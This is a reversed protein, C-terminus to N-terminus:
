NNTKGQIANLPISSSLSASIEEAMQNLAVCEARTIARKKPDFPWPSLILVQKNAVADFIGDSPKYYEGFGNDALYIVKGGDALVSYLVEREKEHIFPSVMVTGKLAAAICSDMYANLRKNDGHAAEDLMTHRVHVPMYRARQLLDANGVGSYMRGAIEIHDQVRFFRPMLRRTALRQPNMDIYRITAPLQRRQGMPRVHPMETFIPSIDYYAQDGLHHRLTDSTKSLLDKVEQFNGQIANMPISSSSSLYSYARGLQKVAQWFGRVSAMIGQPMTRKVYWVAHLHDPMLHFHLVQIDPHYKYLSVLYDVLIDGIPTRKVWAKTPDNDPIVLDGLLPERSPIKLTIHYLGAGKWAEGPEQWHWAEHDQHMFDIDKTRYAKLYQLSFIVIKHIRSCLYQKKKIHAFLVYSLKPIHLNQFTFTLKCYTFLTQM